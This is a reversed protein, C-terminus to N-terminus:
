LNTVSFIIKRQVGRNATDLKCALQIVKKVHQSPVLFGIVSIRLNILEHLLGRFM